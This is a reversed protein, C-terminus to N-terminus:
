IAGADRVHASAVGAFVTASGLSGHIRIGAARAFKELEEASDPYENLPRNTVIRLRAEARRLFSYSDTLTEHEEAGILRSAHLIDLVEWTNTRNLEPYKSGYKLRFMQVLFEIDVIGGKGRKLSRASASAELRQRMNMIDDVIAGSWPVQEIAERVVSMVAEGFAPDGHVVRTRTLSQREWVQAANGGYYRRFEELPIVLRGSKGTPRLKMDVEYLRGMPGTQSSAKIIRQALETFYHAADVRQIITLAEKNPPPVTYGEGEYVLVLDLDSHYSMERGGLKGLALIVYRSTENSRGEESLVPIGFRKMMKAEVQHAIEVLLTEALNSLELTTARITDMGLLDRVGIRLLEKDQFSHLIPEIIEPQEVGRCLEKLEARLEDASRSQNLILSDLLDDIMGPNNILIQSLFPSNSCLDVYLHLSPENFSFLEWLVAKAGLSSTVQELNVLTLDPDPM